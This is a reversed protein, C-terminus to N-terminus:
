AHSREPASRILALAEHPDLRGDYIARGSIAGELINCDPKLLRKIDNISALGGSAIVPISVSSALNLTAEINLGTMVGDRSIDTYILAAVGADELARALDMATIESKEAWGEVAIYGDRADLGIAVRGPFARAAERVLDPNKAAATGIIDRSVGTDLWHAIHDLSRIGGGLQVPISVSKLIGEVASSNMSRGAFAGDLDVVHLYDFGLSEFERAQVAPNDNFVTAQHMDGHILRVCQGEKLDIAPFLILADV